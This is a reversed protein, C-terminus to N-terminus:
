GRGDLSNSIRIPECGQGSRYNFAKPKVTVLGGGTSSVTVLTLVYFVVLFVFLVILNDVWDDGPYGWMFDIHEKTLLPNPEDCMKRFLIELAHRCPMMDAVKQFTSSLEKYPRGGYGSYIMQPIVLYPVVTVAGVETSSSASLLLGATVGVIGCFSVVVWTVPFKGWKNEVSNILNFSLVMFLVQVTIMLSQWIFISLVYMSTSLGGRRERLFVPRDSVIERASNNLALFFTSLCLYFLGGELAGMKGDKCSKGFLLGLLSAALIKYLITTKSKTQRLNYRQLLIPLQAGTSVRPTRGRIDLDRDPSDLRDRVYETCFESERYMELWEDPTHTTSGEKPPDLADLVYDAPNVNDISGLETHTQLYPMAEDAPGFYALKGGKALLILMDLQDYAERRPQHVTMVVTAGENCLKRLYDFLKVTSASDLGSTPEDMFVLRPDHLLEMAINVRKREGGSVGRVQEGGIVSNMIHSLGLQKAVKNIRETMQAETTAAPMRLKATYTLVQKVTLDRHMVDEQPVFGLLDKVLGLRNLPKGDILVQGSTPPAAGMITELLSSKGAGSPGMLAVMERPKISASVHDLIRKSNSGKGVVRSVEQIDLRLGEATDTDMRTNATALAMTIFSGDMCLFMLALALAMRRPQGM